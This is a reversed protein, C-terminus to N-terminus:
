IVGEKELVDLDADTYGMKKLKARKGARDPPINRPDKAAHEIDKVGIDADAIQLLDNIADDTVEVRVEGLEIGDSGIVKERRLIIKRM